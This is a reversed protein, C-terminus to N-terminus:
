RRLPRPVLRARAVCIWGAPRRGVVQILTAPRGRGPASKAEQFRLVKRNRNVDVLKELAVASRESAEIQKEDRSEQRLSRKRLEDPDDSSVNRYDMRPEVGFSCMEFGCDPCSWDGGAPLYRVSEREVKEVDMVLRSEQNDAGNDAFTYQVRERVVRCPRSVVYSPCDTLLVTGEAQFADDRIRPRGCTRYGDMEEEIVRAM